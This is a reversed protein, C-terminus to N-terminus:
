GVCWWGGLFFFYGCHKKMLIPWWRGTKIHPPSVWKLLYYIPGWVTKPPPLNHVFINPLFDLGGGVGVWFIFPCLSFFFCNPSPLCRGLLKPTSLSFKYTRGKGGGGQNIIQHLIIVENLHRLPYGKETIQHLIVQNLHRLPYGKEIIQHLIIVQNRIRIPYGKGIIQHLIM